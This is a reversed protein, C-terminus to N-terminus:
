FWVLSMEEIYTLLAYYISKVQIRYPEGWWNEAIQDLTSKTGKLKEKMNDWLPYIKPTQPNTLKGSALLKLFQIHAKVGHERDIFNNGTWFRTKFMGLLAGYNHAIRNKLFTGRNVFFGTHHLMQAIALAPNVGEKETENFYIELLARVSALDYVSASKDPISRNRIKIFGIIADIDERKLWGDHLIKIPEDYNTIEM